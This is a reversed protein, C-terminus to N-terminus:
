QVPIIPQAPSDWAAHFGLLKYLNIETDLIEVDIGVDLKVM